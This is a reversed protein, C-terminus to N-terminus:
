LNVVDLVTKSDAGQYAARLVESDRWGGAVIVDQVPLSKRLSAWGRRFAHWGGRTMRALGAATEAKRLLYAAGAKNM